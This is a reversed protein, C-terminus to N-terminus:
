KVCFAPACGGVASAYGNGAHGYHLVNCFYAASASYPSALWFWAASNNAGRKQRGANAGYHELRAQNVPTEYARSSYPGWPSGGSETQGNEAIERETPLWIKDALSSAATAKEGGNAICRTPAYIVAGPLGAAKLGTLFNGTLYRRMGSAAYGGKNTATPNMRHTVPVNQFQFVVHAPSNANTGAFSDVGVVILRLLKGNTGMDTNATNVAGGGADAQVTLRPLDLWDGTHIRSLIRERRNPGTCTQLFAHIANFAATVDQAGFEAQLDRPATRAPLTQPSAAPPPTV